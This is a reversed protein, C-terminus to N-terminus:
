DFKFRESYNILPQWVLRNLIIVLAVLVLLAVIFLTTDGASASAAAQDLTSGLGPLIQRLTGYNIFEAVIIINWSQGWGLISGTVLAPFSAPLIVNPIFKWGTAGFNDAAYRIDEPIAHIAGVMSFLISWTMNMVLVFIAGAEPIGAKSFAVIAIPFFALVPVSQLVDFVPLLFGGVVRNSTAVLALIIALILGILYAALLRLMTYGSNTLLEGVSIQGVTQSSPIQFGFSSRFFIVVFTLTVASFFLALFRNKPSTLNFYHFHHPYPRHSHKTPHPM